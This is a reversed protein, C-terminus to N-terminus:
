LENYKKLLQKFFNLQSLITNKNIRLTIYSELIMTLEAAALNKFKKLRNALDKKRDHIVQAPLPYITKQFNIYDKLDSITDFILRMIM